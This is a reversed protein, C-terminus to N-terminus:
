HSHVHYRAVMSIATDQELSLLMHLWKGEGSQGIGFVSAKVHINHPEGSGDPGEHNGVHGYGILPAADLLYAPFFGIAQLKPPELEEPVFSSGFLDLEYVPGGKMSKRLALVRLVDM